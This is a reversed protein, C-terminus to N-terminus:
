KRLVVRFTSNEDAPGGINEVTTICKEYEPPTWIAHVQPEFTYEVTEEQLALVSAQM